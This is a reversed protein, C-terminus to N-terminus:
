PTIQPVVGSEFRLTNMASRFSPWLVDWGGSDCMAEFAYFRGEYSMVAQYWRMERQSLSDKGQVYRELCASKEKGIECARPLGIDADWSLSKKIVDTRQDLRKLLSTADVASATDLYCIRYLAKTWKADEQASANSSFETGQCDDTGETVKFSRTEEDRDLSFYYLSNVYAKQSANPTPTKFVTAMPTSGTPPSQQCGWATLLAFGLVVVGLLTMILPPSSLRDLNEGSTVALQYLLKRKSTAM